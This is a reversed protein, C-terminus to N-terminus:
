ESNSGYIWCEISITSCQFLENRTPLKPTSIYWVSPFTDQYLSSARKGNQKEKRKERESGCERRKTAWLCVSLCVILRFLPEVKMVSLCKVNQLSIQKRNVQLTKTFNDCRCFWSLKCNSYQMQGYWNILTEKAIYAFMYLELTRQATACKVGSAVMSNSRITSTRDKSRISKILILNLQVAGIAKMKINIHCLYVICYLTASHEHRHNESMYM